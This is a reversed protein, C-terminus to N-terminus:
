KFVGLPVGFVAIDVAMGIPSQYSSNPSQYSSYSSKSETPREAKITESETKLRQLRNIKQQEIEKHAHKRDIDLASTPINTLWNM